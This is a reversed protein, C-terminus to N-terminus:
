NHVAFFQVQYNSAVGLHYKVQPLPIKNSLIRQRINYFSFIGKINFTNTGPPLITSETSLHM